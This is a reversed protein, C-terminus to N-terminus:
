AASPEEHGAARARAYMAMEVQRRHELESRLAYARELTGSPLSRDQVALIMEETAAGVGAFSFDDQQAHGYVYDLLAQCGDPLENGRLSRAFLWLIVDIAQIGASEQASSMELRSGFVKRLVMREGLPLHFAEQRANSYMGHWFEIASKFEHQRDHRIVEVPRRWKNSQMEIGGLLNGFGVMNPLHSRRGVKDAHVFELAEPNDAAWDLAEGIIERSRRDVVQHVQDRLARCFAAMAAHARGDNKELLADWFRQALEDDLLHAIKFVLMLRLPRSNYVHWAVAKNEGSDFITDVVKSALVYRKEVRALFFTPGAKRVIRLLDRAITEIRGVGLDAAHLEAVGLSKAISRMDAGFRRDFDSRTMLAATVFLPQDGDLLKAGTNGTEDVYAYM